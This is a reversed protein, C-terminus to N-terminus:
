AMNSPFGHRFNKDVHACVGLANISGCLVCTKRHKSGVYRVAGDDRDFLSLDEDELANCIAPTPLRRRVIDVAGSNQIWIEHIISFPPDPGTSPHGQQHLFVGRPRLADALIPAEKPDTPAPPLLLGYDFVDFPSVPTRITVSVTLSSADLSLFRAGFQPEILCARLKRCTSSLILIDQLSLVTSGPSPPSHSVTFETANAEEELIQKPVKRRLSEESNPIRGIWNPLVTTPNRIRRLPVFALAIAQIIEVPLSTLLM